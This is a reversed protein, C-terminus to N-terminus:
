DGAPTAIAFAIVNDRYHGLVPDFEGGCTILRLEPQLTPLYVDETPFRDKPFQQV